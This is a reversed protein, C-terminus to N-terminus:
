ILGVSLGGLYSFRIKNQIHGKLNFWKLQSMWTVKRKSYKWKYDELNPFSSLCYPVFKQPPFDNEYPFVVSFGKLEYLM